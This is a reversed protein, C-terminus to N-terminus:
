WEGEVKESMWGLSKMETVADWYDEWSDPSSKMCVNCVLHYRSYQKSIM